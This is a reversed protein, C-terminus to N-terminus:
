AAKTSTGLYASVVDAQGIVERPPGDAIVKGHNLVMLRDSLELVARMNHEIFL